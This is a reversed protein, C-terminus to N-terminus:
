GERWAGHIARAFKLAAEREYDRVDFLMAAMVNADRLLVGWQNGMGDIDGAIAETGIDVPEFGWGDYHSHERLGSRAAGASDFVWVGVSITGFFEVTEGDQVRWFERYADAGRTLANDNEANGAADWALDEFQNSLRDASPLLTAPEAEIRSRTTTTGNSGGTCGAVLVSCAAGLSAQLATRRRM